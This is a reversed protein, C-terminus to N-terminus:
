ELGLHKNLDAPRDAERCYPTYFNMAVVVRVGHEAKLPAVFHPNMRADFFVLKGKEPYINVCNRSIDEIGKANPDLSVVLEGGDGKGHSTVYLLAEIPNSDVHAEYRMARGKQVNLNIAYRDDTAAYVAGDTLSQALQFVQQRYLEYLWPLSSRIAVGGVTLTPLRLGADSERSTISTPTLVKKVASLRAFDVIEDDWGNPLTSTLDHEFWKFDTPDAPRPFFFTM